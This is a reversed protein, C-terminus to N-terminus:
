KLDSPRCIAHTCQKSLTLDGNLVTWYSSHQFFFFLSVIHPLYLLRKIWLCSVCGVTNQMNHLLNATDYQPEATICCHCLTYSITRTWRSRSTCMMYTEDRRSYMCKIVTNHSWNPLLSLMNQFALWIPTCITSECFWISDNTCFLCM